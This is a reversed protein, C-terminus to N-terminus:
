PRRAEAACARRAPDRDLDTCSCGENYDTHEGIINVRGPAYAALPLRTVLAAEHCAPAGRPRGTASVTWWPPRPRLFPLYAGTSDSRRAEARLGRHLARSHHRVHLFRRHSAEGVRQVKREPGAGSLTPTLNVRPSGAVVLRVFRSRRTWCASRQASRWARSQKQDM